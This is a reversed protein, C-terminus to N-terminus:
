LAAAQLQSQQTASNTRSCRSSPRAHRRAFCNASGSPDQACVALRRYPRPLPPEEAIQDTIMDSRGQQTPPEEM